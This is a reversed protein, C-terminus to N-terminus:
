TARTKFVTNVGAVSGTKEMMEKQKFILIFRAHSTKIVGILSLDSFHILSVLNLGM